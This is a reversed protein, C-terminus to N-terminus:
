FFSIQPTFRTQSGVALGRISILFKPSFHLLIAISHTCYAFFKKELTIFLIEPPLEFLLLRSFLVSKLIPATCGGELRNGSFKKRERASHM